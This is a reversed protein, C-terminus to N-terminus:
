VAAPETVQVGLLELAGAKMGRVIELDNEIRAQSMSGHFYAFLLKAKSAADPARILGQAHADRIASELYKLVNAFIEQVKNRIGEDQTGIESGVTCYPCGLVNGLKQQFQSQREYSFDFFGEIRQLPPVTPSFIDNYRAKKYQWDAELAAIELESKSRFFHYFSGKRVDAKACIDDVSTAGYSREWILNQAADMLRQKADSIRPM